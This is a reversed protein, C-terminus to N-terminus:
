EGAEASLLAVFADIQAEYSAINAKEVEIIAEQEAIDQDFKQLLVDVYDSTEMGNEKFTDLEIQALALLEEAYELDDKLASLLTEYTELNTGAVLDNYIIIYNNILTGDDGLPNLNTQIKLKSDIEYKEIEIKSVLAGVSPIGGLKASLESIEKDYKAKIAAEKADYAAAETDAKLEIEHIALDNEISMKNLELALDMANEALDYQMETRYALFMSEWLGGYTTSPIDKMVKEAEEKPSAVFTTPASDGTYLKNWESTGYLAEGWTNINAVNTPEMPDDIFDALAETYEKVAKAYSGTEDEDTLTAQSKANSAMAAKLNNEYTELIVETFSGSSPFVSFNDNAVGIAADLVYDIYNNINYIPTNHPGYGDLLISDQEISLNSIDFSSYNVNKIGSENTILTSAPISLALKNDANDFAYIEKGEEMTYTLGFDNEHEAYVSSFMKAILKNAFIPDLGAATEFKAATFWEKKYDYGVEKLADLEADKDDVLDQLKQKDANYQAVAAVITEEQATILASVDEFGAIVGEVNAVQETLNDAEVQAEAVVREIRALIIPEANEKEKLMALKDKSTSMIDNYATNIKNMSTAIKGKLTAIEARTDEDMGIASVEIDYLARDYDAQAQALAEQLRLISAEHTLLAQEKQRELDVIQEAYIAKEVEAQAQALEYELAKQKVAIEKLQNELLQAQVQANVMEIEATKYAAEALEYAAQAKLWESKAGRLESIGAPEENELTCSTYMGASLILVGAFLIKKMM